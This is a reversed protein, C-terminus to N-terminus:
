RLTVIAVFEDVIIFAALWISWCESFSINHAAADFALVLVLSVASNIKCEISKTQVVGGIVQIVHLVPIKGCNTAKASASERDIKTL